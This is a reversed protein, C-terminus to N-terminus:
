LKRVRRDTGNKLIRQGKGLQSVAEQRSLPYSPCNFIATDVVDNELVSYILTKTFNGHSDSAINSKAKETNIYFTFSRLLSL